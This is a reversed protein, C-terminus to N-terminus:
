HEESPFDKKDSKQHHLGYPMCNEMAEEKRSAIIVELASIRFEHIKSQGSNGSSVVRKLKM